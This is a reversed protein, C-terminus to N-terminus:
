IPFGTKIMEDAYKTEQCLVIPHRDMKVLEMKQPDDLQFGISQNFTLPVKYKQELNRGMRIHKFRDDSMKNYSSYEKAANDKGKLQERLQTLCTKFQDLSVKGGDCNTEIHEVFMKVEEELAPYGYTEYLLEEIEATTVFGSAEKDVKQFACIFEEDTYVNLGLANVMSSKFINPPGLATIGFFSM